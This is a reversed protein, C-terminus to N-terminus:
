SFHLFSSAMIMRKSLFYSFALNHSMHAGDFYGLLFIIGPVGLTYEQWRGCVKEAPRNRFKSYPLHVHPCVCADYTCRGYFFFFSCPFLFYFFTVLRNGDKVVKGNKKFFFHGSKTKKRTWKNSNQTTSNRFFTITHSKFSHIFSSDTVPLFPWM